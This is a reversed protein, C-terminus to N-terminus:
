ELVDSVDRQKRVDVALQALVELIHSLLHSDRSSGGFQLTGKETPTAVTSTAVTSTAVTSTAMTLVIAEQSPSSLPTNVIFRTGSRDQYLLYGNSASVEMDLPKLMQPLEHVWSVEYANEGSLSLKTLRGPSAAYFASTSGFEPVLLASGGIPQRDLSDRDDPRIVRTEAPHYKGLISAWVAVVGTQPIIVDRSDRKISNVHLTGSTDLLRGNNFMKISTLGFASAIQLEPPLDESSTSAPADIIIVGTPNVYPYVQSSLSYSTNRVFGPHVYEFERWTNVSETVLVSFMGGSAGEVFYLRNGRFVPAPRRSDNRGGLRLHKRNRATFDSVMFSGVPVLHDNTYELRQVKDDNLVWVHKKNRSKVSENSFINTYRDARFEITSRHRLSGDAPDRELLVVHTGPDNSSAGVLFALRNDDVKVFGNQRLQIESNTPSEGHRATITSLDFVIQPNLLNGGPNQMDYKVITGGNYLVYFHTDDMLLTDVANGNIESGSQSLDIIGQSDSSPPTTPDPAHTTSLEAAGAFDALIGQSDSSPPTTPDPAHTTSLEAAGVFDDFNWAKATAITRTYFPTAVVSLALISATTKLQFFSPTNM